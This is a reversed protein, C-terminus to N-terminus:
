PSPRKERTLADAIAAFEEMSLTEPRRMPDIAAEALIERIRSHLPKLSNAITKRRQSFSVKVLSFFLREDAVNVAPGGRMAIHILASDVKPAPRFAGAPIIFKLRADAYYQVMISLVGYTKTGPPAVIREGVEKQVTLTMSRLNPRAKMLRFILPTTIYYPINAVVKFPGLEEYPYDLADGQILDVNGPREGEGANEDDIDSSLRNPLFEDSLREFLQRDLEIAIVRCAAQSLIRTLDGRGPGIEVVTDSPAVDATEVIRSLISPDSLFHQGLKKRAMIEEDKGESLCM